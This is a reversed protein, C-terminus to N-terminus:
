HAPDWSAMYEEMTPKEGAKLRKCIDPLEPIAEYTTLFTEGKEAFSIVLNEGEFRFGELYDPAGHFDSPRTMMIQDDVELFTFKGSNSKGDNNCDFGGTGAKNFELFNKYRMQSVSRWAGTTLASGQPESFAFVKMVDVPKGNELSDGCGAAVMLALCVM